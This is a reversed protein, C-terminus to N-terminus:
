CVKYKQLLVRTEALEANKAYNRFFMSKMGKQPDIKLLKPMMKRYKKPSSKENIKSATKAVSQASLPDLIPELFPGFDSWFRERFFMPFFVSIQLRQPAHVPLREDAWGGAFLGGPQRMREQCCSGARMRASETVQAARSPSPFRLFEPLPNRTKLVHM